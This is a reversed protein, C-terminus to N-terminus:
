AQEGGRSHRLPLSSLEDNWNLGLGEAINSKGKFFRSKKTECSDFIRGENMLKLYVIPPYFDVPSEKERPPRPHWWRKYTHEAYLGKGDSFPKINLHFGSWHGKNGHVNGGLGLANFLIDWYHYYSVKKKNKSKNKLRVEILYTAEKGFPTFVTETVELDNKEASKKFYGMGFIREKYNVGTKPSYLMSWQDTGDKIFGFGGSYAKLEPAFRNLYKAGREGSFVQVSNNNVALGIANDNGILHINRRKQLTKSVKIKTRDKKEKKTLYEIGPDIDTQDLSYNYAALGFEDTFWKGFIGSGYPKDSNSM